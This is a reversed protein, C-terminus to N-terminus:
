GPLHKGFFGLWNGYLIADIDDKNYGRRELHTGVSQLDAITKVDGPTQETGFGGDLDSGIAVHKADGALNCVHDIHDIVSTISLTNPDSKWRVWAPDLMWADFAVGIVGGRHILVNIQEDSFQRSGAVVARCNNHSALLPGDFLDVAEFFAQDCLHTVDLIMGLDRFAKLLDRGAETVPGSIGTGAAYVGQGYHVLSAVRLGGEWWREAQFPNTISDSGEAAIIIGIPLRDYAGGKAEVRDWYEGLDERTQILSIEGSKALQHYYDLQGAAFASAHLSNIFDIEIRKYGEAPLRDPASRALLTGLALVVGGARMEPFTVTAKGRAPHDKMHSERRNLESLPLSLDRDFGIANM